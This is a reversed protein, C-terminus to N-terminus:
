GGGSRERREECLGEFAGSSSSRVASLRVREAYLVASTAAACQVDDTVKCVKVKLICGSVVNHGGDEGEEDRRWTGGGGAEDERM